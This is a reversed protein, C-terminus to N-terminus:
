DGMKLVGAGQIKGQKLLLLAQNAEELEFEQVEPIIPIKAALPLFERADKRTINAVSKIEKEDWLLQAYDLPPIPNRKRIVALVLRGGKELARLARPVTEGVPTFDIAGDLKQPPEDEPRGTWTAGLKKALTRHDEARTFVYVECGWHRAMQIVIHASAGFGFLGLTQGKKIGSLILDRYGIAGACLLPTADADSFREPILYAFDESVVTYQAYGGDAHCGTGRFESCLNETGTKCFHCKGCSSHIWAIGVRDGLDFETAGSGLGQVRGVIQHGLVIPLKPPLRGEIEDLETHCIGCASIKVLIQKPGPVPDPLDEMKLPENEIPAIERLVMARM